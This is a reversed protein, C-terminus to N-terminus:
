RGLRKALRTVRVHEQLDDLLKFICVMVVVLLVLTGGVHIVNGQLPYNKFWSPSYCFWNVGAFMLATLGVALDDYVRHM